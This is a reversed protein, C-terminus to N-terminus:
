SIQANHSNSPALAKLGRDNVIGVILESINWVHTTYQISLSDAISRSIIASKEQGKDGAHHWLGACSLILLLIPKRVFLKLLLAFSYGALM